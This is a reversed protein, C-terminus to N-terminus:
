FCSVLLVAEFGPRPQVKGIAHWRLESREDDIRDPFVLCLEDEFVLTALDFSVGHKRQNSLDKAEDWEYRVQIYTVYYM